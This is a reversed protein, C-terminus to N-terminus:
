RWMTQPRGEPLNRKMWDRSSHFHSILSTMKNKNHFLVLERVDAQLLTLYEKVLGLLLHLPLVVVRDPPISFVPEEGTHAKLSELSRAHEQEGWQPCVSPDDAKNSLVADCFICFYNSCAGSHGFNECLFAYDGGLFFRLKRRVVQGEREFSIERGDMQKLEEAIEGFAIKLNELKDPAEMEGILVGNFPSNPKETCINQLQLKFSGGGHDGILMLYHEGKRDQVSELDRGLSKIEDRRRNKFFFEIIIKIIKNEQFLSRRGKM